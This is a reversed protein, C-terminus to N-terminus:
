LFMRFMFEWCEHFHMCACPKYLHPTKWNWALGMYLKWELACFRHLLRVLGEVVELCTVNNLRDHRKLM